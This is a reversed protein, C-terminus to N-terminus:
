LTRVVSKSFNENTTRKYTPVLKEILLIIKEIDTDYAAQELEKITEFLEQEDFKTPSEIFIKDMNTKIQNKDHSILLEEYLKEGPRLGTYEIDIDIEPELGSLKILNYALDKIKVPEGMDLVFIEGGEAMSSARLVLQVAEPITM